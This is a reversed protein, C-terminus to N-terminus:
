HKEESQLATVYQAVEVMSAVWLDKQKTNVYDVLANHSELAVDIPHEGGVGHFLFVLLGGKELAEDVLAILEQTSQGAIVVANINFLDVEQPSQLGANVGRAGAFLPKIPDVFSTGSATTDGCTYAFTRETKGDLTQLVTNTMTIEDLMRQPSWSSLDRESSVWERGPKGGVCPHFMTHNGMEHGQEALTRWEALRAQFNPYGVALYFTGKFNHKNLAPAVNDLHVNLTDDYTFVVAARKGQWDGKPKAEEGACASVAVLVLSTVMSAYKWM